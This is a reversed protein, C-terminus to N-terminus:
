NKSESQLNKLIALDHAIDIINRISGSTGSLYIQEIREKEESPSATLIERLYSCIEEALRAFEKQLLEVGSDMNNAKKMVSYVNWASKGAFILRAATEHLGYTACVELITGIDNKKRLNGNCYSDLYEVVRSTDESLEM